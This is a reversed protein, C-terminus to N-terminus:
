KIKDLNDVIEQTRDVNDAETAEYATITDGVGGQVETVLESLAKLIDAGGQSAMGLIPHAIQGILIGYMEKPGVGESAVTSSADSVTKAQSDLGSKHTRLAPLDYKYNM